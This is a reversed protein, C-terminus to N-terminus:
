EIAWENLWQTGAELAGTASRSPIFAWYRVVSGTDYAGRHWIAGDSGTVPKAFAGTENDYTFLYVRTDPGMEEAYSPRTPRLHRLKGGDRDIRLSSLSSANRADKGTRLHGPRVREITM